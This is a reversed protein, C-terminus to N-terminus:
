CKGSWNRNSDTARAVNLNRKVKPSHGFGYGPEVLSMSGLLRRSGSKLQPRNSNPAGTRTLWWWRKCNHLRHSLTEFRISARGNVLLEGEDWRALGRLAVFRRQFSGHLVSLPILINRPRTFIVSSLNNRATDVLGNWGHWSFPSVIEAIASDFLWSNQLFGHTLMPDMCVLANTVRNESYSERHLSLVGKRQRLLDHKYRICNGTTFCIHWDFHEVTDSLWGSYM